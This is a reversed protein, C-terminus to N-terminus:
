LNADSGEKKYWKINTIIKYKKHTKNGFKIEKGQISAEIKRQYTPVNYEEGFPKYNEYWWRGAEIISDFEYREGTNIICYVPISRTAFIRCPNYNKVQKKIKPKEVNNKNLKAEKKLATINIWGDALLQNIKTINAGATYTIKNDKKFCQRDKQSESIKQRYEESRGKQKLTESLTKSIKQRVEESKMKADHKEKTITSDMPNRDSGGEMMNYGNKISDYYNIWYREKENLEEQSNATDIQEVSFTELGYKQMALYLHLTKKSQSNHAGIHVQFREQVSKTTQGIYVKNSKTTSIKYIYGYM